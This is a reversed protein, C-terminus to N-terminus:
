RILREILNAHANLSLIENRQTYHYFLPILRELQTEDFSSILADSLPHEFGLTVIPKLGHESERIVNVTEPASVAMSDKSLDGVIVFANFQESDSEDFRDLARVQVESEVVEFSASLQTFQEKSAGIVAICFTSKM